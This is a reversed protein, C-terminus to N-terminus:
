PDSLVLLDVQMRDVATASVGMRESVETKKKEVEHTETVIRGRFWSRQKVLVRVRKYVRPFSSYIMAVLPIGLGVLFYVYILSPSGLSWCPVPM